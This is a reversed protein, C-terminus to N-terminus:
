RAVLNLLCDNSDIHHNIVELCEGWVVCITMDIRVPKSRLREIDWPGYCLTVYFRLIFVTSNTLRNWPGPAVLQPKPWLKLLYSPNVLFLWCLDHGMNYREATTHITPGKQKQPGGNWTDRIFCKFQFFLRKLLQNHNPLFCALGIYILNTM